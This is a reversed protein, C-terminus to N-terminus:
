MRGVTREKSFANSLTSAGFFCCRAMVGLSNRAMNSTDPAPTPTVLSLVIAAVASIAM